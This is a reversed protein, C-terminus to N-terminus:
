KWHSVSDYPLAKNSKVLNYYAGLAKSPWKKQMINIFWKPVSGKSDVLCEIEIVTCISSPSKCSDSDIKANNTDIISRLSKSIYRSDQFKWFTHNSEARIVNNKTPVRYDDVSQYLISVSRTRYNFFWQRIICLSLLLLFIILRFLINFVDLIVEEFSNRTCNNAM